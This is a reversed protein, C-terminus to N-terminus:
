WNASMQLVNSMLLPFTECGCHTQYRNVNQQSPLCKLLAIWQCAISAQHLFVEMRSMAGLRGSVMAPITIALHTRFLCSFAKNGKKTENPAYMMDNLSHFITWCNNPSLESTVQTDVPLDAHLM